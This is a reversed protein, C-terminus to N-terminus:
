HSYIMIYIGGDFKLCLYACHIRRLICTSLLNFFEVNFIHICVLSHPRKVILVSHCNFCVMVSHAMAPTDQYVPVSTAAKLTTVTLMAIVTMLQQLYVSMLMQSLNLQM